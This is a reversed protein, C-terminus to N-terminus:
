AGLELSQSRLDKLYDDVQGMAMKTLDAAGGQIPMNIAARYAGERVMFNSSQVDPTPKRRGMVTEVYGKNKADDKFQDFQVSLSSM